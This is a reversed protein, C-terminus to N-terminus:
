FLMVPNLNWRRHNARYRFLMSFRHKLQLLLFWAFQRIPRPHRHQNGLRIPAHYRHDFDDLRDRRLRRDISPFTTLYVPFLPTQTQDMFWARYSWNEACRHSCHVLDSLLQHPGCNTSSGSTLCPNMAYTVSRGPDRILHIQAKSSLGGIQDIKKM